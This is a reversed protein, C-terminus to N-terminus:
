RSAVHRDIVEVLAPFLVRERCGVDAVALQREEAGVAKADAGDAVKAEISARAAGPSALDFGGDRMCRQWAALAADAGPLTALYADLDRVGKAEDPTLSRALRGYSAQLRDAAGEPRVADACAGVDGSLADDQTQAPAEGTVVIPQAIGYGYRAAVAADGLVIPDDPAIDVHHGRQELCAELAAETGTTPAVAPDAGGPAAAAHALGWASAALGIVVVAALRRKERGDMTKTGRRITRM